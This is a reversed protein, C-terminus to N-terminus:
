ADTTLIALAGTMPGPGFARSLIITWILGDVGRLFDFVRRFGFRVVRFPAFNSAALFSLPLAILAAGFTGLFAMLVTEFMAWAVDAHHWLSNHWFDHWMLAANSHLPDLRPGTLMATLAGYSKGYFPSDLTFFFMEWGMQYRFTETKSRSYSFRGQDTTISIRTDTVNIWDPIPQPATLRLKSGDSQIDITGYGPVVYRAADPMYTVIHGRGLDITTTDGAVTVWDPFHGAAYTGKAEGEIAVSVARDRNNRTVHTKYSVFDSLLIKANDLRARSALGMVDFSIALYVLYALIVFPVAMATLRRNRFSAQLAPLAVDTM